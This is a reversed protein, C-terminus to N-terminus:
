DDLGDEFDIDDSRDVIKRPKEPVKVADELRAIRGGLGKLSAEHSEIDAQTKRFGLKTADNLLKCRELAARSSVAEIVAAFKAAVINLRELKKIDLSRGFVKSSLEDFIGLLKQRAQDAMNSM